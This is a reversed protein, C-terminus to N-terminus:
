ENHEFWYDYPAAYDNFESQTYCSGVYYLLSQRVQSWTRCQSVIERIRTHVLTGISIPDNNYISNYTSQNYTDVIDVFMPSYFSSSTKKWWQRFQGTFNETESSATYGLLNYRRKTLYWGVYSAYSERILKHVLAYNDGGGCEGRMTFHGLEHLVDGMMLNDNNADNEYVVIYAPNASYYFSASVGDGNVGAMTIRIGSDYYWTRISHSGYYYFNVAPLVSYYSPSSGPSLTPIDNISNWYYSVTSWTFVAPNTSDAPTIKWRPHQFIHKYAAASSIAGTVSFFGNEQVYTDWMNSGLQFRIKLNQQGVLEGIFFDYKYVYGQLTVIDNSKTLGVFDKPYYGIALKIAEKEVAKLKAANDGGNTVMNYDPLFVEHDIEHEITKPFPKAAPWIAYLVPLRYTEDVNGICEDNDVPYSVTYRCDDLIFSRDTPAPGLQKNQDYTLPSYNFPTYDVKVDEMLEIYWQEEEDKPFFRVAFHTTKIPVDEPCVGALVCAKKITNIEYPDKQPVIWTHTSLHYVAKDISFKEIELFSDDTALRSSLSNFHNTEKLKSCGIIILAMFVTTAARIYKRM